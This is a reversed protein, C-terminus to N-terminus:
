KSAVAELRSAMVDAVIAAHETIFEDSRPDIGFVKKCEHEVSFVFAGAGVLLYFGHPDIDVGLAKSTDAQMPIIYKEAIYDMRWSPAKGEQVMLRNLQPVEASFRVFMTVYLKLRERLPLSEMLDIVQSFREVLQAFVRDVAQKWFAEKTDFHYAVLGRQVGAHSEITRVSVGDFGISSFLETGADLLLERTEEARKQPARRRPSDSKAPVIEAVPM